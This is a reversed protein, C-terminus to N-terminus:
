TMVEWKNYHINKTLHELNEEALNRLNKNPNRRCQSTKKKKEGVSIKKGM